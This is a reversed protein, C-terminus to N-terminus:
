PCWLNCGTCGIVYMKRYYKPKLAGGCLPCRHKAEDANEKISKKNKEFEVWEELIELRHEKVYPVFKDKYIRDILRLLQIMDTKVFMQHELVDEILEFNKKHGPTGGSILDEYDDVCSKLIANALDEYNEKKVGRKGLRKAEAWLKEGEEELAEIEKLPGIGDRRRNNAEETLKVSQCILKEIPDDPDIYNQTIYMNAM